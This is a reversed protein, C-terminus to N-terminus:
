QFFSLRCRKAKKGNRVETCSSSSVPEIGGRKGVKPILYVQSGATRLHNNITQLCKSRFRILRLQAAKPFLMSVHACDLAFYSPMLNCGFEHM